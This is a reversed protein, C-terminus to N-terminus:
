ELQPPPSTRESHSVVPAVTLLRVTYGRLYLHRAMVLGDGGNNGKGCLVAVPGIIGRQELIAIAADMQKKAKRYLEPDAEEFTARDSTVSIVTECPLSVAHGGETSVVMEAASLSAARM